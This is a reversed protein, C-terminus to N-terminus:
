RRPRANGPSNNWYDIQRPAQSQPIAPHAASFAELQGADLCKRLKVPVQRVSGHRDVFFIHPFSVQIAAGEPVAVRYHAPSLPFILSERTAILYPLRLVVAGVLVALLGLVILLVGLSLLPAMFLLSAGVLVCLAGM